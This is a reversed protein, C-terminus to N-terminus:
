FELRVDIVRLGQDAAELDDGLVGWEPVALSALHM